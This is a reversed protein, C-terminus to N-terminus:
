RGAKTPKPQAPSADIRGLAEAARQLAPLLQLAKDIGLRMVPAQLAVCLNSRAKPTAPPVRVAVCVLGPLFEECDVAHGDRKVQQLQRELAALEIVTSPTYKELPAHALLRRRQAPSM